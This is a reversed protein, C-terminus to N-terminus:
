ACPLTEQSTNAYALSLYAKVQPTVGLLLKTSVSARLGDSTQGPFRRLAEAEASTCLRAAVLGSLYQQWRPEAGTGLNWLYPEIGIRPRVQAGVELNLLYCDADQPLWAFGQRADASGPWAVAELYRRLDSLRKFPVLVRVDDHGRGFMRGMLCLGHPRPIAQLCAFVRAFAAIPPPGGHLASLCGMAAELGARAPSVFIHPVPRASAFQEADIELLVWEHGGRALSRARQWAPMASWARPLGASSGALMAQGPSGAQVHLTLDVGRQPCALARELLICSAFDHPLQALFQELANREPACVLAPPIEISPDALLNRLTNTLM